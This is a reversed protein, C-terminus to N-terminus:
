RRVLAGRLAWAIYRAQALPLNKVLTTEAGATTHAVVHHRLQGNVKMDSALVVVDSVGDNALTLNGRWPIPGHRVRLTSGDVEVRTRNLAGALTTYTMGVGAAIHLSMFLLTWFEGSALAGSIAFVMASDWIACFVAMFIVGADFWRRTVVVPRVSPADATRYARELILSEAPHEVTIAKPREPEVDPADGVRAPDFRFVSDCAVCKAVLEVINVDAAPIKTECTPCTLM